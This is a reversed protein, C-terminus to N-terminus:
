MTQKPDLPTTTGELFARAQPAKDLTHAKQLLKQPAGNHPIMVSGSKGQACNRNWTPSHPCSRFESNLRAVTEPSKTSLM